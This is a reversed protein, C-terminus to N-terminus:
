SFHATGWIGRFLEDGNNLGRLSFYRIFLVTSVNLNWLCKLDSILNMADSMLLQPSKVNWVVPSSYGSFPKM